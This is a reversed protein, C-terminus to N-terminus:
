QMELWTLSAGGALVEVIGHPRLGFRQLTSEGRLMLHIGSCSDLLFGGPLTLVLSGSGDKPSVPFTFSVTGQGKEMEPKIVLSTADRHSLLAVAFHVVVGIGTVDVSNGTNISLVDIPTTNILSGVAIVIASLVNALSLKCLVM